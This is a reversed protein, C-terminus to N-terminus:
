REESRSSPKETGIIIINKYKGRYKEQLIFDFNDRYKPDGIIIVEDFVQKQNLLYNQASDFDNCCEVLYSFFPLDNSIKGNKNTYRIPLFKSEKFFKKEAIVLTRSKFDTIFPFSDGFVNNLYNVDNDINKATNRGNSLNPNLKYFKNDRNQIKAGKENKKPFQYQLTLGSSNKGRVQYVRKKKHSYVLDGIEIPPNTRDIFFNQYLKILIISHFISAFFNERYEDEPISIFFDNKNSKDNLIHQYILHFNVFDFISYKEFDTERLNIEDSYSEQIESNIQTLYSQIQLKM